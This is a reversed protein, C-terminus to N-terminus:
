AETVEYGNHERFWEAMRDSTIHAEGNAFQVGGAGIGCFSPNNKVKVIYNKKSEIQVAQTKQAAKTEAEEKAKMVKEVAEDILAQTAQEDLGDKAAKKSATEKAKEIKEEWSLTAM